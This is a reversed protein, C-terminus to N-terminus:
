LRLRAPGMLSYDARSPAGRLVYPYLRFHDNM